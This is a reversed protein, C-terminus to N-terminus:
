QHPGPRHGSRDTYQEESRMREELETVRAKLRALEEATSERPPEPAAFTERPLPETVRASGGGLRVALASGLAAGGFVGIVVAILVVYLRTLDFPGNPQYSDALMFGVVGALFGGALVGFCGGLAARGSNRSM